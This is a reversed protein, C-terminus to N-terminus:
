AGIFMFLVGFGSMVYGRARSAQRRAPESLPPVPCRALRLLWGALVEGVAAAPRRGAATWGGRGRGPPAHPSRPSATGSGNRIPSGGQKRRSSRETPSPKGRVERGGGARSLDTSTEGQRQDLDLMDTTPNGLVLPLGWFNLGQFYKTPFTKTSFSAM